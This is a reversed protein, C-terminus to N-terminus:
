WPRWCHTTLGCHSPRPGGVALLVAAPAAGTQSARRRRAPALGRRLAEQLPRRLMKRFGLLRRLCHSRQRRLRLTASLARAAASYLSLQPPALRRCLKWRAGSQVRLYRLGRRQRQAACLASGKRRRRWPTTRAKAVTWVGACLPKWSMAQVSFNELAKKEEETVCAKLKDKTCKKCFLSVTSVMGLLEGDTTEVVVVKKAELKRIHVMRGYVANAPCRM